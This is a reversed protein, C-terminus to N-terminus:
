ARHCSWQVELLLHSPPRRRCSWMHQGAEALRSWLHQGDLWGLAVQPWWRPLPVSLYRSTSCERACANSLVCSFWVSLLFPRAVKVRKAVTEGERPAASGNDQRGLASAPSPAAQQAGFAPRSRGFGLSMHKSPIEHSKPRVFRTADISSSDRQTSLHRICAGRRGWLQAVRILRRTAEIFIVFAHV